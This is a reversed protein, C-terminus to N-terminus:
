KKIAFWIKDNDFCHRNDHHCIIFTHFSFQSLAVDDFVNQPDDRYLDEIILIGGSKLYNSAINIVNKQHQKLHTSDDIIVDFQLNADKFSVNLQRPSSVDTYLIRSVNPLNLKVANEIKDNEYEMGVINANPFFESFTKLSAAQEIGIECLNFHKYRLHGLLLQYVATYGKRHQHCASNESFPSKDTNFKAAINCLETPCATSDIYLLPSM